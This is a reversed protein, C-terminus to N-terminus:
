FRGEQRAVIVLHGSEVSADIAAEPNSLRVSSGVACQAFASDFAQKSLGGVFAREARSEHRGFIERAMCAPHYFGADNRVAQWGGCGRSPLPPPPCDLACSRMLADLQDLDGAVVGQNNPTKYQVLVFKAGEIEYMLDAGRIDSASAGRRHLKWVRITVGNIRRVTPAGVREDRLDADIFDEELPRQDRAELRDRIEARIRQNHVLRRIEANIDRVTGREM